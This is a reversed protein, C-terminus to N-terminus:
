LGKNVDITLCDGWVEFLAVGLGFPVDPMRPARIMCTSPAGVDNNYFAAYTYKETMVM